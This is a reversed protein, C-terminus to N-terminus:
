RNRLREMLMMQSKKMLKTMPLHVHFALLLLDWLNLPFCPTLNEFLFIKVM